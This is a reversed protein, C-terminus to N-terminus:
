LEYKGIKQDKIMLGDEITIVRKQLRDVIDKNHTSLIVTTGFTNIKLLLDIIGWGTVNDLNATPEDAILIQPQHVLARAIAVRQREGGSLEDPYCYANSELNVMRIIKPVRQSIEKNSVGAVELAYAINEYVNKKPLLKFDQFVVGIKRRLYPIQRNPFRSYDIKGVNISGSDPKIEMNILKVITSKGAGSKGVLVVFEKPKIEFSVGNLAADKEKPYKKVVEKFNIV